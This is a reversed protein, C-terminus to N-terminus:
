RKAARFLYRNLSLFYDGSRSLARLDDRWAIADAETLGQRGPIFDAILETMGASYTNHNSYIAEIRRSAEDDFQLTASM